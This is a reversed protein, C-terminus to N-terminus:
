TGTARLLDAIAAQPVAAGDAKAYLLLALVRRAGHRRARRVLYDWDVDERSVIALADFWDFTRQENHLVAKIVGLDEPPILPVTVGNVAAPVARDLMEEDLHLDGGARFIVDVTVGSRKAKHIWAPDHEIVVFGAEDLARLAPSVDPPRVLIDIDEGTEFPRERGLARTAISGFVVYAVRADELATATERLVDTHSTPALGM